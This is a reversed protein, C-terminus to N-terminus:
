GRNESRRLSQEFSTGRGRGLGVFDDDRLALKLRCGISFPRQPKDTKSVLAPRRGIVPDKDFRSIHILESFCGLYVLDHDVLFQSRSFFM